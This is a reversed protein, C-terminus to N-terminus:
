RVGSIQPFQREQRCCCRILYLLCDNWRKSNSSELRHDRSITGNNSSAVAGKEEKYEETSGFLQKSVM